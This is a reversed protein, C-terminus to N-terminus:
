TGGGGTDSIKVVEWGSSAKRAEEFDLKLRRGDYERFNLPERNFYFRISRGDIFVTFDREPATKCRFWWVETM